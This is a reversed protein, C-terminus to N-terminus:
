LSEEDEEIELISVNSKGKRQVTNLSAVAKALVEKEAVVEEFIEQACPRVEVHDRFSEVTEEDQPLVALFSNSPLHAFQLTELTAYDRHRFKFQRQYFHQYVQIIMYSMSGITDYNPAWSHAGAKGGNKSYMTIV